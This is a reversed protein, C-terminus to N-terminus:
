HVFPNKHSIFLTLFLQQESTACLSNQSGRAVTICSGQCLMEPASCTLLFLYKFLLICLDHSPPDPDLFNYEIIHIKIKNWTVKGTNRIRMWKDSDLEMQIRIRKWIWHTVIKVLVNEVPNGTICINGCVELSCLVLFDQICINKKGGLDQEPDVDEKTEPNQFNGTKLIRASESGLSMIRIFRIILIKM